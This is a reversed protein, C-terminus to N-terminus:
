KNQKLTEYDSDPHKKEKELSDLLIKMEYTPFSGVADDGGLLYYNCVKDARPKVVKEITSYDTNDASIIVSENKGCLAAGCLADEYSWATAIAMNDIGMGMDLLTNAVLASTDYLTEGGLRQIVVGSQIGLQSYVYSPMVSLGGLLFIHKFGKSKIIDITSQDLLGTQYNTLFIPAQKAYAYSAVSLADSYGWSTAIFCTDSPEPLHRAIENATDSAWAGSYREVSIKMKELDAVVAKSIVSEGGCIYVKEVQLRKLETKTQETLETSKTLLIPAKNAGALSSASLADWYGNITALVATKCTTPFAERVIQQMTDFSYKGWLRTYSPHSKTAKAKVELEKVLKEEKDPKGEKGKITVTVTLTLKGAKKPVGRVSIIGNCEPTKDETAPAEDEPNLKPTAAQKQKEAYAYMVDCILGDAGDGSIKADIHTKADVDAVSFALEKRMATKVVVETADFDAVKLHEPAPAPTEAPKEGPKEGPKEAPPTDSKQDTTQNGGSPQAASPQGTQESGAQTTTDAHAQVTSACFLASMCVMSAIVALSFRSARNVHPSIKM